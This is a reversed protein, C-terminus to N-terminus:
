AKPTAWSNGHDLLCLPMHVSPLPFLAALACPQLQVTLGRDALVFGRQRKRGKALM